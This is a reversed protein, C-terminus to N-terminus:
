GTPAMAAACPNAKKATSPALQKPAGPSLACAAGTEARPTPRTPSSSCVCWARVGCSYWRRACNYTTHPGRQVTYRRILVAGYSPPSSREDASHRPAHPPRRRVSPPSPKPPVEIGAPTAAFSTYTASSKGAYKATKPDCPIGKRLERMRQAKRARAVAAAAEKSLRPKPTAVPPPPSSPWLLLARTPLGSSRDIHEALSKSKKSRHNSASQLDPGSTSAPRLRNNSEM